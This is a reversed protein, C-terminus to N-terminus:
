PHTKASRLPLNPGRQVSTLPIHRLRGLNNASPQLLGISGRMPPHFRLKLSQGLLFALLYRGLCYADRIHENGGSFGFNLLVADKMGAKKQRSNTGMFSKLNGPLIMYIGLGYVVSMSLKLMGTLEVREYLKGRIKSSGYDELAIVANQTTLSYTKCIAALRVLVDVQRNPVVENPSTRITDTLVVVPKGEIMEFLVIGTSALSADIGLIYQYKM